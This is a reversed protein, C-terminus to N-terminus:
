SLSRFRSFAGQYIDRLLQYNAQATFHREFYARAGDRLSRMSKSEPLRAFDTLFQALHDPGELPLKLGNEGNVILNNLSGIAFALVPTGCAMSELLIMPMGEYWRSPFMLFEAEKLLAVVRAHECQGLYEVNPLAAAREAVMLRLPGDGAIKLPIACRRASWADLMAAVGKEAALRGAYLAYGGGGPGRGPDHEVFNPKVVIREPPLGGECFKSRAFETLAIYAHIKQRYTGALRHAGLMACVAASVAVSDRYCGHLVAPYKVAKSLCLECIEGDRYLTAAPCLFRYNHLTQVVPVNQAGAAYYVAPSVLPLTNHVHLIDIAEEAIVRRINHYSAGNWVTKLGLEIAQMKDVADNHVTYQFVEHGNGALLAQEAARVRDDGGAHRYFNHVQLIRM